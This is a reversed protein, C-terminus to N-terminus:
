LASHEGVLASVNSVIGCGGLGSRCQHEFAAVFARLMIIEATFLPGLEFRACAPYETHLPAQSTVMVRGVPTIPLGDWLTASGLSADEVVLVVGLPEWAVKITALAAPDDNVAAALVDNVAAASVVTPRHTAFLGILQRSLVVKSSAQLWRHLGGLASIRELEAEEAMVADKGVRPEGHSGPILVCASNTAVAAAVSAVTHDRGVRHYGRAASVAMWVSGSRPPWRSTPSARRGGRSPTPDWRMLQMLWGPWRPLCLGSALRTTATTFTGPRRLRRSSPSSSSSWHAEGTPRGTALRSRGTPTWCRSAWHRRSGGIGGTSGTTAMDLTPGPPHAEQRGRFRQLLTTAEDRLEDVAAAAAPDIQCQHLVNAIRAVTKVVAETLAERHARRNRAISVRAIGLLLEKAHFPDLM